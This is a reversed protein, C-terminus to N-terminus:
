WGRLALRGGVMGGVRGGIGDGEEVAAAGEAGMGDGVAPVDVVFDDIEEIGGDGGEELQAAEVVEDKGVHVVAHKGVIGGRGDALEVEAVICHLESGLTAETHGQVPLNDFGEDLLQELASHGHGKHRM